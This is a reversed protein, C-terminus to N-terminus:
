DYEFVIQHEGEPIQIGMFLYNTHYITTEQSDITAHWHQDWATTNVLFVPDTTSVDIVQTNDSYHVPTIIATSGHYPFPTAEIFAPQGQHSDTVMKTLIAQSDTEFVLRDAAYWRSLSDTLEYLHTQGETLVPRLNEQNLEKLALIYKVDTYRLLPSDINNPDFLRIFTPPGEPVTNNQLIEFFNAYRTTYIPDYGGIAEIGYWTLTNTPAIEINTTMTRFPKPVNQLYTLIQSDPYYLQRDTFPTFKWGFRLIDLCLILAILIKSSTPGIYKSAYLVSGTATLLAVPIVSNRLSVLQLQSDKYGIGLIAIVMAVVLVKSFFITMNKATKTQNDLEKFGVSAAYALAFMIIALFRTPQLSSLLPVHLVFPLHSIWSDLSYLLGIGAILPWVHQKKQWLIQLGTGALVLGPISLYGVLEGYNWDGFYNLTSPNGFFDPAISQILHSMPIFFGEVKWDTVQIARVSTSFFEIYRVLQQRSLLLVLVGAIITMFLTTYRKHMFSKSASYVFSIILAYAAIQHHGATITMFYTFTLLTTLIVYRLVSKAKHLSNILVLSVPLWLLTSIITGWYLWSITFSSFSVILSGILAAFQDRHETRLYVYTALGYGVMQSIILVTWAQEFPLHHFIINLPYDPAAQINTELPMGGMIYPNWGVKSSQAQQDIVLKRWPIQQRFPDSILFNKYPAGRAYTESLADIWPHYRGVMADAPIPLKGHLIVPYFFILVLLILLCVASVDKLWGPM